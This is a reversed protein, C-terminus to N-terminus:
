SLTSPAGVICYRYPLPPVYLLLPKNHTPVSLSLMLILTPNTELILCTFHSSLCCFDHPFFSLIGVMKAHPDNNLKDKIETTYFPTYLSFRVELYNKEEFEENDSVNCLVKFVFPTIRKSYVVFISWAM